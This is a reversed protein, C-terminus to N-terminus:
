GAPTDDDEVELATLELEQGPTEEIELRWASVSPWVFELSERVVGSLAGVKVHVASVRVARAKAAEGAALEAIEVAIGLEHM